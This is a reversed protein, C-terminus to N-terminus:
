EENRVYFEVLDLQNVTFKDVLRMHEVIYSSIPDDPSFQWSGSLMFTEERLSVPLFLPRRVFRFAIKPFRQASVMAAVSEERLFKSRGLGTWSHNLAPRRRILIYVMPTQDLSIAFDEVTSHENAHSRLWTDLARYLDNTKIGAAFGTEITHDLKAPSLDFYTFKWDARAIAYYSPLLVAVLLAFRIADRGRVGDVRHVLFVALAVSLPIAAYCFTLLGLSSFYSFLTAYTAAPILIVLVFIEHSELSDPRWSRKLFELSTLAVFAILLASFWMQATFWDGRTQQILGSLNTDIVIFMIASLALLSMLMFVDSLKLVLRCSWLFVASIGIYQLAWLYDRQPTHETETLYRQLDELSTLFEVNYLAIFVGWLIVTPILLLVLELFPLSVDEGPTRRLVYWLLCPAVSAASLPLFSFGIAWLFVGSLLFLGRRAASRRAKLALLLCGIHLTLFMHPYTYYSMNSNMGVTDLGTYAFVSAAVFTYWRVGTWKYVAYILVLIALLSLWYQIRRFELLTIDPAIYFISANFLVYLNVASTSSDPFLRDGVSLRWGDTMHMGEDIFNMGYPLKIWGWVALSVFLLLSVSFLGRESLLFPRIDRM